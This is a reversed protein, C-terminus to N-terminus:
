PFCCGGGAPPDSTTKATDQQSTKKPAPDDNEALATLTETLAAVNSRKDGMPHEMENEDEDGEEKSEELKQNKFPDDPHLAKLFEQYSIKGDKDTDADALVKEPSVQLRKFWTDEELKAIHKSLEEKSLFGDKDEGM